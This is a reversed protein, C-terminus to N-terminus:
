SEANFENPFQDYYSDLLACLAVAQTMHNRTCFKDFLKKYEEPLWIMNVAKCGAAKARKRELRKRDADSGHVRPRGVQRKGTM